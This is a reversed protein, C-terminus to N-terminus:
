RTRDAIEKWIQLGQKMYEAVDLDFIDQLVTPTIVQEIPGFAVADGEKLLLAYSSFRLAMTIDHLVGVIARKPEDAWKQLYAVMEAQVKLDLHNTPEDLLILSPQQALVQALFVRQLEGGSLATVDKNVFAELGVTALAQKAIEVDKNSANKFLGKKLHVYRGMLVVDLVTYAYVTAMFQGLLGINQAIKKRDAKKIVLKDVVIEGEFTHLGAICKLLTSKGAGNAGLVALNEGAPLSFSINRLVITDGYRATVNKCELM